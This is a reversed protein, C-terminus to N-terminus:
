LLGPRISLSLTTLHNWLSSLVVLLAPFKVLAESWLRPGWRWLMRNRSTSCGRQSQVAGWDEDGCDSLLPDLTSGVHAPVNLPVMAGGGPCSTVTRTSVTPLSKGCSFCQPLTAEMAHLLSASSPFSTGAALGPAQDRRPDSCTRKVGGGASRSSPVASLSRGQGLCLESGEGDQSPSSCLEM